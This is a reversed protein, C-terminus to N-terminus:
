RHNDCGRSASSTIDVPSSIARFLKHVCGGGKNGNKMYVSFSVIGRKENPPQLIKFKTVRRTKNTKFNADADFTMSILHDAALVYRYFWKWFPPRGGHLIKSIQYKTVHDADLTIKSRWALNRTLQVIFRQSIGSFRNEIHSGAVM